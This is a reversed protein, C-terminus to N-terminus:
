ELNIEDGDDNDNNDNNLVQVNINTYPFFSCLIHTCSLINTNQIIDTSQAVGSFPSSVMGCPDNSFQIENLTTIQLLNNVDENYVTHM